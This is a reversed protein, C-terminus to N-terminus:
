MSTRTSCGGEKPRHLREITRPSLSRNGYRSSRWQSQLLAMVLSQYPGEPLTFTSPSKDFGVLSGTDHIGTSTNGAHQFHSFGHSSSPFYGEVRGEAEAMMTATGCAGTESPHGGVFGHARASTPLLDPVAFPISNQLYRALSLPLTDCLSFTLDIDLDLICMIYLLLHRKM